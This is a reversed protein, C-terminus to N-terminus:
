FRQTLGVSVRNNDYNAFYYDASYSHSFSYGLTFTLDRKVIREVGVGWLFVYTTQAIVYDTYRSNTTDAIITTGPVITHRLEASVEYTDDVLNNVAPDRYEYYALSGMLSTRGTAARTLTTVFSDVRRLITFPDHVYDSKTIFSLTFTSYHHVIGADWIMHDSAAGGAFHIVSRGLTCYAYSREAYAYRPGGYIDTKYYNQVVNYDQTYRVGVTFTLNSTLPTVMELYGMHDVTDVASPEKYWAADYKYGVVPTFPGGSRFVVYPNLTIWNRDTQNIFSSEQTFDRAVSTSVREYLDRGEFFFFNDILETRNRIDTRHTSDESRTKKLYYSYEYFYDIDWTWFSSRYTITVAPRIRTIYDEARNTPTLFVNDNYEEMLTIAPVVRFEAGAADHVFITFLSFIGILSLFFACDRITITVRPSRMRQTGAMGAM